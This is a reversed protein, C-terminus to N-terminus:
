LATTVLDIINDRFILHLSPIHANTGRGVIEGRGCCTDSKKGGMICMEGIKQETCIEDEVSVSDLQVVVVALAGEKRHTYQGFQESSFFCQLIEWFNSIMVTPRVKIRVQLNRCIFQSRRSKVLWWRNHYFKVM